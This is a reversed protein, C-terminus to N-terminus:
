NGGSDAELLEGRTIVVKENGYEDYDVWVKEDLYNGDEDVVGIFHGNEDFQAYDNHYGLGPGQIEGVNNELKRTLVLSVVVIVVLILLVIATTKNITEIKM